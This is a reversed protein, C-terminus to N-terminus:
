KMGVDSEVTTTIEYVIYNKEDFPEWLKAELFAPFDSWTLLKASINPLIVALKDYEKKIAIIWSKVPDIEAVKGEALVKRESIIDIRIKIDKAEDLKLKEFRSDSTAAAITNKIIEWALNAEVEKVNGASWRIEGNKYLTVFCSGRTSLLSQDTIKLDTLQPEKLYKLYFELTQQVLELMLNFPLFIFTCTYFLSIVEKINTM